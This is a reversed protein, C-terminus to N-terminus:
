LSRTEGLGKLRSGTVEEVAVDGILRVVGAYDAVIAGYGADVIFAAGDAGAACLGTALADAVTLDAGVM